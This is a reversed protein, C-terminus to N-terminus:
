AGRAWRRPICRMLHSSSSRDRRKQFKHKANAYEVAQDILAMDTGPAYKRLAEQLSAYHEEFTEM